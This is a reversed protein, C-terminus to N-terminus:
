KKITLVGLVVLWVLLAFLVQKGVLSHALSLFLQNLLSLENFTLSSQSIVESM